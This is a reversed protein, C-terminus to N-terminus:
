SDLRQALGNGVGTISDELLELAVEELSSEMWNLGWWAQEGKEGRGRMVRSFFIKPAIVPRDTAAPAADVGGGPWRLSNLTM